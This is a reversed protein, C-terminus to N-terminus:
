KEGKSLVPPTKLEKISEYMQRREQLTAESISRQGDFTGLFRLALEAQDRKGVLYPLVARLVEGAHMNERMWTFCPRDKSGRTKSTLQYLSGPFLSDVKNLIRADTNTVTVRAYYYMRPNRKEQTIRICGEGDIIGALWALDTEKV